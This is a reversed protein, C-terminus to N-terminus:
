IIVMKSACYPVHPILSFIDMLDVNFYFLIIIINTITEMRSLALHARLPLPANALSEVYLPTLGKTDRLDPSVALDLLKKLFRSQGLM